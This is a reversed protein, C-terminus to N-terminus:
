KLRIKLSDAFTNGAADRMRVKVTADVRRNAQLARSVKFDANIGRKLLLKFKKERKARVPKKVKTLAMRKGQRKIKLTGTVVVDVPEAAGARVVVRTEAGSQRQTKDAKIKPKDVERDVVEFTRSAVARASGECSATQGTYIPKDSCGEADTVTLTATYTGPRKYTHRAIPTTTTEPQGAGFRWKYSAITGDNDISEEGNFRVRQGVSPSGPVVKIRARPSRNPTTALSQIDAGTGGSTFPSGAVPALTGQASRAFGAVNAAAASGVAYVFRGDPTVASGTGGSVSPYPSGALPALSGDAAISYAGMDGDNNGPIYMSKGDPSIALSGYPADNVPYPSGSLPTLAGDAAVAFGHVEAPAFNTVYLRRGNPAFALSYPQPGLTPMPAALPTLAGDSGIAYGDLGSGSDDVAYLLKADPSTAVSFSGTGNPWPSGPLPTLAGDAGIAFGRIGGAGAEGVYLFRGDATASLGTPLGGAPFPSGALESLAGSPAVAYGSVSPGSGNAVYLYRGDPTLAVGEPGNGTSTTPAPDPSLVGTASDAAFVSVTGDDYNTVYVSRAAAAAPLGLAIVAVVLAAKTKRGRM